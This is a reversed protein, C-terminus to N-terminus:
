ITCVRPAWVDVLLRYEGQPLLEDRARACLARSPCPSTTVQQTAERPFAGLYGYMTSNLTEIMPIVITTDYFTRSTEIVPIVVM